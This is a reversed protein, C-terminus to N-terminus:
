FDSDNYEDMDEFHDQDESNDTTDDTLKMKSLQEHSRIHEPQDGENKRILVNGQQTWAAFIKKRKVLQRTAYFINTRYETLHDNVYINNEPDSYNVTKKRNQYFKNRMRNNRFRVVIDRPKNEKRKGLRHLKEISSNQIMINMKERALIVIKEIEKEESCEHDEPLEPVGVLQVDREFFKQEVEDLKVKLEQLQRMKICSLKYECREIKRSLKSNELKLVDREEKIASIEKKLIKNEEKIASVENKMNEITEEMEETQASVRWEVEEEIDSKLEEYKKKYEEEALTRIMNKLQTMTLESYNFKPDSWATESNNQTTEEKKKTSQAQKEHNQKKKDQLPEGKNSGADKSSATKETKDLQGKKAKGM